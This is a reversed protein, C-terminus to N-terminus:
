KFQGTAYCMISIFYSIWGDVQQHHCCFKVSKCSHCVSNQLDKTTIHYFRTFIYNIVSFYTIGILILFLSKIIQNRCECQICLIFIALFMKLVFVLQFTYWTLMVQNGKGGAGSSQKVSTLSMQKEGRTHELRKGWSMCKSDRKAEQSLLKGTWVLDNFESWDWIMSFM